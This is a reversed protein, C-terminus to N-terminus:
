LSGWKKIYDDKIHANLVTKPIEGNKFFQILDQGPRAMLAVWATPSFHASHATVVVNDLKLLPDDMEIPEVETVDLGAMAIEGNALANYLAKSDILPGRGANVICASPKMMKLEEAGIMHRTESTLNTNPAVIDSKKLLEDLGKAEEVGLKEFVASDLYPDYAIIKIGFGKAKPLLTRSVGGLGIIGLTQGKLRSMFPWITKQIDPDPETKWGGNKVTASLQSIRRTCNLILAMVHDSVEEWCYDPVNAVFICKKSATEIDIQDYGIGMSAIFRCKDLSEIVKTTYPQLSGVGILADADKANSIIAEETLSTSKVVTANLGAKTMLDQYDPMQALDFLQAIRLDMKIGKKVSM